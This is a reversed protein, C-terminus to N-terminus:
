LENGKDKSVYYSLDDILTKLRKIEEDREKIGQRKIWTGLVIGVALGILGLIM